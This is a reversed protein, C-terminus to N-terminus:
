EECPTKGVIDLPGQAGPQKRGEQMSQVTNGSNQMSHSLGYVETACAVDTDQQTWSLMSQQPHQLSGAQHNVAALSSLCSNGIEPLVSHADHIALYCILHLGVLPSSNFNSELCAQLCADLLSQNAHSLRQHAQRLRVLRALQYCSHAQLHCSCLTAFSHVGSSARSSMAGPAAAADGTIM